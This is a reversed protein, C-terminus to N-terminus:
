KTKPTESRFVHIMGDMETVSLAIGREKSIRSVLVRLAGISQIQYLHFSLYELRIRWDLWERIVGSVGYNLISRDTIM